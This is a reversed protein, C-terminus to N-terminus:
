NGTPIKQASEIVLTDVPGKRAELKLGLQERLATFLSPGSADAGNEIPKLAWDLKVSYMGNLETEDLIPRETEFRSLLYALMPMTLISDIHGGHTTGQYDDPLQTVPKLKPGNQASVLAYYSMTKRQHGIVLKFREALLTRTMAQLQERSAGPAAKADINFLVQKSRIWDPGGIQADSAIGYAFRICDNLTANDFTVEEHRVTGINMSISDGLKAIDVPKVTAVDFEQPSQGLGIATIFALAAAATRWHTM